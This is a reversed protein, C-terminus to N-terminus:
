GSIPHVGGFKHSSTWLRGLISAIGELAVNYADLRLGPAEPNDFLTGYLDLIVSDYTRPM